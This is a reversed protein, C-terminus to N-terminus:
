PLSVWVQSLGMLSSTLICVNWSPVLFLFVFLFISPPFISLLSPPLSPLFLPLSQLHQIFCSALTITYVSIARFCLMIKLFQYLRM